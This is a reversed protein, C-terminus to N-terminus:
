NVSSIHFNDAGPRSGIKGYREFDKFAETVEAVETHTLAWLRLPLLINSVSPWGQVLTDNM